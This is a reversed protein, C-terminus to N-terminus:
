KTRQKPYTMPMQKCNDHSMPWTEASYLLIKKVTYDYLRLKSQFALKKERWINDRKKFVSSAKAIGCSGTKSLVSGLYCLEEVFELPNNDVKIQITDHAKGIAICKTKDANIVLGVERAVSEISDTLQQLQTVSEYILAIDDAFELDTLRDDNLWRLGSVRKSQDSGSM